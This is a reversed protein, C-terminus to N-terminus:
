SEICFSCCCSALQSATSVLGPLIMDSVPRRRQVELALDEAQHVLAAGRNEVHKALLRLAASRGALAGAEAVLLRGLVAAM